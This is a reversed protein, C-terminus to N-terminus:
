QTYHELSTYKNYVNYFSALVTISKHGLCHDKCTRSEAGQQVVHPAVVRGGGGAGVRIGEGVVRQAALECGKQLPRSESVGQVPLM